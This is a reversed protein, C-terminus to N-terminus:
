TYVTIMGCPRRGAPHLIDTINSPCGSDYVGPTCVCDRCADQTGDSNYDVTGGSCNGIDDAIRRSSIAYTGACDVADIELLFYYINAPTSAISFLSLLISSSVETCLVGAGGAICANPAIGWDFGPATSQLIKTDILGFNNENDNGYYKVRVIGQVKAANLDSPSSVNWPISILDLGPPGSGDNGYITGNGTGNGAMLGINPFNTTITNEVGLQISCGGSSCSVCQEGTVSGSDGCSLTGDLPTTATPTPGPTATATATPGPTATATPTPTPTPGTATPGPTATPTATATATPTPTATATPTPTPTPFNYLVWNPAAGGGPNNSIFIYSRNPVLQRLNNIGNSSANWSIFATGADNTAFITKVKNDRIFPLDNNITVPATNNISTAHSANDPKGDGRFMAIQTTYTIDKRYPIPSTETYLTYPIGTNSRIYYGYYETFSVLNNIGVPKWSKISNDRRPSPSSDTTLGYGYVIIAKDLNPFNTLNITTKPAFYEFIVFKKDINM